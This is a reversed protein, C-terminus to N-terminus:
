YTVVAPTTGIRDNVIHHYAIQRIPYAAADGQLSVALVLDSDAVFSADRVPVYRAGPLPNFMWEFPDQQAFWVTGLSVAVAAVLAIKVAVSRTQKWLLAGLAVVLAAVIVTVRPSWSRMAFAWAMSQRTQAGFPQDIAIPVLVLAPLAVVAALIVLTLGRKSMFKTFGHM